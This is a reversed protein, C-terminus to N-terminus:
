RTDPPMEGTGKRGVERVYYKLARRSTRWERGVKLAPIAGQQCRLALYQPGYPSEESAEKLSVLGDVRTGVQDLLDLLSSGSLIVLFEKLPKLDGESARSLSFLYRKRGGPLVHVPPWNHRLLHLNLLLRGVRGNGDTFPHIREFGCHMWAASEFLDADELERRRLEEQWSEMEAIVKEPRPPSYRAGSMRVNVRRWQGADPIVGRFVEEHLQLVTKLDIGRSRRGVLGRFARDHQLTELVDRMPRRGPTMRDRLIDRADEYSITSGEIANTGWTNLAATRRWLSDPLSDLPTRNLLAERLLIILPNMDNRFM